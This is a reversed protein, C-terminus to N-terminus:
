EKIQRASVTKDAGYEDLRDAVETWFEEVAGAARAAELM